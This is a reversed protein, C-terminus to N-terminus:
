YMEVTQLMNKLLFRNRTSQNQYKKASFVM